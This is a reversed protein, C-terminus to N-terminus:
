GRVCHFLYDHHTMQEIMAYNPGLIAAVRDPDKTEILIFTPRHRELDLGRLVDVEFGEVDLSFFDIHQTICLEDLLRSLTIATVRVPPQPEINQIRLGEAIHIRAVAEDRYAGEAISMLGAPTMMISDGRHDPAVLAANVCFSATRLRLCKKYLDPIPEILIGRWGRFKELYYTNSQKFGDNAGCEIFFGDRFGLYAKLREDLGYLAPKSFREVSIMEACRRCASVSSRKIARLFRTASSVIM